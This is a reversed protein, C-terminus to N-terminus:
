QYKVWLTNINQFAALQAKSKKDDYKHHEHGSHQVTQIDKKLQDIEPQSAIGDLASLFVDKYLDNATKTRLFAYAHFTHGKSACFQWIDQATKTGIYQSM